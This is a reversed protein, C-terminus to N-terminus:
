GAFGGRFEGKEMTKSKHCGVGFDVGGSIGSGVGLHFFEDFFGHM